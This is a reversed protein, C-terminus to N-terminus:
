GAKRKGTSRDFGSLWGNLVELTVPPNEMCDHKADPIYVLESKKNGAKKRIAMLEEVEDRGVVDDHEGHIFLVPLKVRSIIENTKANHAEPSRMFWWTRYTYM